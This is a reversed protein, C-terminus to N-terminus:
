EIILQNNINDIRYSKFKKLASQGLLLPAKLNTSVSTRVNHIETDGIKLVSINFVDSVATSGDAFRYTSSGVFDSLKITGSKVLTSFVDASISVDAAGPDVIFNIKLVNNIEVPLYYIGNSPVLKIVNETPNYVGGTYAGDTRIAVEMMKLNQLSEDFIELKINCRGGIYNSKFGPSLEIIRETNGALISISIIKGSYLGKDYIGFYSDWTELEVYKDHVDEGPIVNTKKVSKKFAEEVWKIPKQIDWKGYEPLLKIDKDNRLTQDLNRLLSYFIERDYIIFDKELSLSVLTDKVYQFVYEFTGFNAFPVGEYVIRNFGPFKNKLLHANTSFQTGITSRFSLFPSGFPIAKVNEFILQGQCQPIIFLLYAIIFSFIGKKM